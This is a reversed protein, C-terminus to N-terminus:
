PDASPPSSISPRVYVSLLRISPFFSLLCPHDLRSVLMEDATPLSTTARDLLDSSIASADLGFQEEAIAAVSAVM